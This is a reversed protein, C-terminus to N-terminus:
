DSNNFGFQIPMDYCYNRIFQNPVSGKKMDFMKYQKPESM